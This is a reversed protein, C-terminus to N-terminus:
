AAVAPMREMVYAYSAALGAFPNSSNQSKETRVTKGDADLIVLVIQRKEGAGTSVAAVRSCDPIFSAPMAFLLESGAQGAVSKIQDDFNAITFDTLGLVLELEVTELNDAGTAAAEPAHTDM